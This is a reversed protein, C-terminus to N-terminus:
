NPAQFGINIWTMNQFVTNSNLSYNYGSSTRWLVPVNEVKCNILQTGSNPRNVQFVKSVDKFTCNRFINNDATGETRQYENFHIANISNTVTVNIFENDHGANQEDAANSENWDKFNVAGWAGDVTVNEFTNHHAGNAVDITGFVDGNQTFMSQVACNKILNNHVNGYSLEISTNIATSNLFQNNYAGNKGTLGHGGHTLKTKRNVTCYQVVTNETGGTLLIYYDTPNSVDDSYVASYSLVCNDCDNFTIGEGGANKVFSDTVKNNNGSIRLGIGSYLSSQADKGIDDVIMNKFLNNDGDSMIARAYKRFQINHFELNSGRLEFAWGQAAGNTVIGELLPMESASIQDGYEFTSGNQSQIDEPVSKYGKFVIPNGYSGSGRLLIQQNGYNGAKIYITQGAQAVNFAHEISWPQNESLGDNSSNGYTAVFRANDAIDNYQPEEAVEAPAEEVTLNITTQCGEASTLLYAGSHDTSVPGLDHNDSVTTGDPLQITVGIDNPLMSFAVATGHSVTLDNEGSSWVGNLRYEPIIQEPTCGAEETATSEETTAAEEATSEEVEFEITVTGEETTTSGDENETETTYTFTDSQVAADESTSSAEDSESNESGSNESTSADGSTDTENTGSNEETTTTTEESTTTSEESTTTSEESTTTSEEDTNSNTSSDSNGETSTTTSSESTQTSSSGDASPPSTETGTGMPTYVITNDERIQVTGHSPSSINKITVKTSDPFSDNSLVDLIISGGGDTKFLDDRIQIPENFPEDYLAYEELLDSDKSCSFLCTFVFLLLTLKSVHLSPVM